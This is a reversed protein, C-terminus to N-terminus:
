DFYIPLIHKLENTNIANNGFYISIFEKTKQNKFSKIIKEFYNILKDNDIENRYYIYILHNEILYEKDMNVILYNFTYEGKFIKTFDFLFDAFLVHIFYLSILIKTINKM